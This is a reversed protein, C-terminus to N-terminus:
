LLCAPIACPQWHIVTAFQQSLAANFQAFRTVNTSTAGTCALTFRHCNNDIVDYDAYEYIRSVARDAAGNAILPTHHEDCAAYIRSGSRNALFRRPSIARVLGNGHREIIHDDVWIGTHQFVGYIGCCVVTGDQPKVMTSDEGPFHKIHGDSVQKERAIQTGAWATLGVGLWVLPLAM